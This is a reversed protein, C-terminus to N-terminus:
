NYLIFSSPSQSSFLAWFAFRSTLPIALMLRTLVLNGKAVLSGRELVYGYIVIRADHPGHPNPFNPDIFGASTPSSM